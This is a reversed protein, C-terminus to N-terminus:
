FYETRERIGQRIKNHERSGIGTVEMLEKFEDRVIIRDEITDTHSDAVLSCCGVLVACVTYQGFESFDITKAMEVVEETLEPSFNLHDCFLKADNIKGAHWNASARDNEQVGDNLQNLWEWKRYTEGQRVVTTKHSVDRPDFGTVCKSRGDNQIISNSDIYAEETGNSGDGAETLIYRSSLRSRASSFDDSM